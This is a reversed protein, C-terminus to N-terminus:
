GWLKQALDVKKQLDRVAKLAYTLTYSHERPYKGSKVGEHYEKARELLSSYYELSEPLSLNVEKAAHEWYNAKKKLQEAKRSAEVSKGLNNWSQDIVKRHWRESHHGVKIPEGLSLFGKHEESKEFFRSSKAEWKAAREKLKQAKAQAREQKNIGDIRVVSYLYEELEDNDSVLNYVEVDHTSGYKTTMEIIEGKDHKEKCVAVFVGPCFKRYTNM